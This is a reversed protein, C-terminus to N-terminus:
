PLEKLRRRLLALGRSVRKRVVQETTAHAAAIEEYEREEDVRALVAARQEEPLEALLLSARPEELLEEVRELRDDDAAVPGIGLRRRARRDVAGRRHLDALKHHAITFLWGAPENVQAGRHVQLVVEAFTEATLEVATHADRTRRMFYAAVAAEYRDYFAGLAEPRTKADALLEHDTAM